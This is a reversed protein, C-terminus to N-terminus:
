ILVNQSANPKYARSPPQAYEIISVNNTIGKALLETQKEQRLMDDRLVTNASIEQRLTQFSIGSRSNQAQTDQAQKLYQAAQQEEALASRYKRQASDIQRQVELKLEKRVQDIQSNKTKIPPSESGLGMQTL